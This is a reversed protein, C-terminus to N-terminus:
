LMGMDGAMCMFQSQGYEKFNSKLMQCVTRLTEQSLRLLNLFEQTM